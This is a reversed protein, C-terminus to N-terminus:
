DASQKYYRVAASLNVAVGRGHERCRGYYFQGDANEQDASLKFYHAAESLNM